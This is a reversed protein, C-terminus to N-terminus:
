VSSRNLANGEYVCLHGPKAKPDAVTGPCEPPAVAGEAIFHETPASALEFGFTINDWGDDGIDAAQLGLAYEGQITKIASKKVYRADAKPKLHNNWISDWNMNAGAPTAVLIVGIMMGAALLAVMKRRGAKRM